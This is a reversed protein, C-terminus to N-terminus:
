IHLLHNPYHSFEHSKATFFKMVFHVQFARKAWTEWVRPLSGLRTEVATFEINKKWRLHSHEQYDLIHLSQIHSKGRSHSYGRHMYLFVPVSERKGVHIPTDRASTSYRKRVFAKEWTLPLTGTDPMSLIKLFLKKGRLHSHDKSYCKWNQPSHSKGVRTPTIRQPNNPKREIKVKEWALQLVGAFYIHLIFFKVKGVYTPTDREYAHAVQSM